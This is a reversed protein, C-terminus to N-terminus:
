SVPEELTGCCPRCMAYLWRSVRAGCPTDSVEMATKTDTFHGCFLFKYRGVKSYRSSGRALSRALLHRTPIRGRRGDPLCQTKRHETLTLYTYVVSVSVSVYTNFPWFLSHLLLTATKKYVPPM